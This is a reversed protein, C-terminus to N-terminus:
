FVINWYSIENPLTTEVKQISKYNMVEVAPRISYSKSIGSREFLKVYSMQRYGVLVSDSFM